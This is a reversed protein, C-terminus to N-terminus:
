LNNTFEGLWAIFSGYLGLDDRRIPIYNLIECYLIARIRVSGRGSLLDDVFSKIGLVYVMLFSEFVWDIKM